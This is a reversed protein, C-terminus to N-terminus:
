WMANNLFFKPGMVPFTTLKDQTYGMLKCIFSKNFYQTPWFTWKNKEM